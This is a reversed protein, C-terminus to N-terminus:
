GRVVNITKSHEAGNGVKETYAIDMAQTPNILHGSPNNPTIDIHGNQWIKTTAQNPQPAVVTFDDSRQEDSVTEGSGQTAVVQITDAPNFTGAAVTIGNNTGAIGAVTAASAEKVWPSTNNRRTFTTVVNGNRKIVLKDAYTTVNGAHTNVTQNAGPAITIAGAATETVTPKAPQVDKVVFKAPLSTAFTHGNYIVDYKANVVKAVNPKNMASWNADNTGTTDRNWKYTFGDTPLGTANQMHAYGSAQTGSALTGGVTTTYTTQPFEFQYVNVTVPVRKAASIGPYTVDVNLHQVGAQQNNPQQRNAWAATIGNTNTNPDFTIYNMADTGNTLNQGKVDRSPAKANAVPYVKVPVEVNRTGQGNPLTVVATKHTNGVTNKWTDPSDHWAVTAGHPPNQIFREVHGFDFGDGGKIFVAGETTAQLQPTVTVTASDNSDVSENRTVTVVQGHEDQTTYTVN